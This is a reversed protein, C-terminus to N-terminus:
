TSLEQRLVALPIPMDRKKGYIRLLMKAKKV